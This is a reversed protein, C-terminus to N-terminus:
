NENWAPVSYTATRQFRHPPFGAPRHDPDVPDRVVGTGIVGVRLGSIWARMRGNATHYIARSFGRAGQFSMTRPRCAASRWSASSAAVKDGRDTEIRWCKAAEDFTAATVRTDLRHAPAPWLPRRCPQCLWSKPQPAIRRGTGNSISNKRSSFSYQMSEVDCRAGPYRNWYWTGGVGGGAEYVARNFGLGRLRHLM